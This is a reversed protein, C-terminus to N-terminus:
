REREKEDMSERKLWGCTAVVLREGVDNDDGGGVSV